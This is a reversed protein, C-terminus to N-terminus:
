IQDNMQLAKRYTALARERAFSDGVIADPYEKSGAEPV